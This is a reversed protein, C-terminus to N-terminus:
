AVTHLEITGAPQALRDCVQAQVFRSDLTYSDAGRSLLAFCSGCTTSRSWSRCRSCFASGGDVYIAHLEGSAPAIQISRPSGAHRRRSLGWEAAWEPRIYRPSTPVSASRHQHPSGNDGNHVRPTTRGATAVSIGSGVSLPPSQVGALPPRPTPVSHSRSPPPPPTSARHIDMVGELLPLDALRGAAYAAKESAPRPSLPRSLELVDIDHLRRVTTPWRCGAGGHKSPDFLVGPDGPMSIKAARKAHEEMASMRAIRAASSANINPPKPRDGHYPDMMRYLQAHGKSENHVLESLLQVHDDAATRAWMPPPRDRKPMGGRTLDSVIVNFARPTVDRMRSFRPRASARNARSACSAHVVFQRDDSSVMKQFKGSAWVGFAVTPVCSDVSAIPLVAWRWLRGPVRCERPARAEITAIPPTYESDRSFAETANAAARLM